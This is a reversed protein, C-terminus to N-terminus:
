GSGAAGRSYVCRKHVAGSRVGGERRNVLFGHGFRLPVGASEGGKVARSGRLKSEGQKGIGRDGVGEPPAALVFSDSVAPCSERDLPWPPPGASFTSAGFGNGEGKWGEEEGGWAGGPGGALKSM